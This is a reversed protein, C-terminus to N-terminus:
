TRLPIVAHRWTRVLVVTHSVLDETTTLCASNHVSQSKRVTADGITMASGAAYRGPQQGSGSTEPDRYGSTFDASMSEVMATPQHESEACRTDLTVIDADSAPERRRFVPVMCRGLLRNASGGVLKKSSKIGLPPGTAPRSGLHNESCKRQFM